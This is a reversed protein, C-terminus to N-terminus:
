SLSSAAWRDMCGKGFLYYKALLLIESQIRSVKLSAALDRMRTSLRHVYQVAAAGAVAEIRRVGSAIGSESVIKFLGVESTNSVHTGGCLEMSIGPVDVVRVVDDYREGFMATAGAAKAEQLGM